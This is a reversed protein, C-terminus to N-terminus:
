STPSGPCRRSCRTRSSSATTSRTSAPGASITSRPTAPTPFSRSSRPRKSASRASRPTSRARVAAARADAQRPVPLRRQGPGRVGGRARRRDPDLHDQEPRRRIRNAPHRAGVARHHRHLRPQRRGQPGGPGEADPHRVERQLLDGLPPLQPDRVGPHRHVAQRRRPRLCLDHVGDRLHRIRPGRCMRRMAPVIQEIQVFKLDLRGSRVGAQKLPKTLGYNGLAITLPQMSLSGAIGASLLANQKAARAVPAGSRERRQRLEPLVWCDDTRSASRPCVISQSRAKPRNKSCFIPQCRSPIM